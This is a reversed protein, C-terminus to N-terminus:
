PQEAVRLDYFNGHCRCHEVHDVPEVVGEPGIQLRNFVIASLAVSDVPDRDVRDFGIRAMKSHRLAVSWLKLCRLVRLRTSEKLKLAEAEIEQSRRKRLLASMGRAERAHRDSAVSGFRDNAPWNQQSACRQGKTPKTRSPCNQMLRRLKMASRPAAAH